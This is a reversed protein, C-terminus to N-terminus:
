KLLRTIQEGYSTNAGASRQAASGLVKPPACWPAWSGVPASPVYPVSFVKRDHHAIKRPSATRAGGMM